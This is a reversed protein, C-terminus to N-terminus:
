FIIESQNYKILETKYHRKMRYPLHQNNTCYINENSESIDVVKKRGCHPCTLEEYSIIDINKYKM